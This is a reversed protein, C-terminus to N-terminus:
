RPSVKGGQLPHTILWQNHTLTNHKSHPQTYILVKATFGKHCLSEKSIKTKTDSTNNLVSKKMQFVLSLTDENLRKLFFPYEDIIIQSDSFVSAPITFKFKLKINLYHLELSSFFSDNTRQYFKKSPISKEILLISSANESLFEM